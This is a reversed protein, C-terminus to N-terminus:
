VVLVEIALISELARSMPTRLASPIDETVYCPTRHDHGNNKALSQAIAQIELM